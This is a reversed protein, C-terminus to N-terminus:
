LCSSLHVVLMVSRRRIEILHDSLIQIGLGISKDHRYVSNAAVTVPDSSCIEIFACQEDKRELKNSHKLFEYSRSRQSNSGHTYSTKSKADTRSKFGSTNVKVRPAIQTYLEVHLTARIEALIKHTNQVYINANQKRYLVSAINQKDM